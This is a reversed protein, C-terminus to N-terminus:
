QGRIFSACREGIVIAPVNTNGGTISPIIAADAVRLGEIGRVKLQPDVVADDGIGMKCTGVPHYVTCVRNPLEKRMEERTPYEAEGPHLEQTIMDGMEPHKMVERVLEIGDLLTEADAPDELFHPDIIPADDPNSSRLLMEGRSKPYILTPQITICPRTDVVPRGPADQNPSPYAWPLQHIQLNPIPESEKTKVFAVTEFVTRALWTTAPKFFEKVMASLLYMATGRNVAKPALYVLPFFLHDHLNKGVPLDVVPEIGVSKLHEAPGIGSLMLTQASGIVGGSLIVEKNALIDTINGKKDRTRVGTCRNGDLLVKLVHTHLLVELNDREKLFPNIYGEATSYRLGKEASMQFISVGEQEKGNYDDNIGCGTVADLAKMYALTPEKIDGPRSVKIPGSGGRTESEGDEFSELKKLYPLMEKYSWGECGEAAWDDYNKANGRVYVMGNVASSGGMVKGRTYPIKRNYTHPNPETYYGWDYQAKVQPVTHMVSIMGPKKVMSTNDDRGAEILLVRCDSDESLRGAVACGASGAGVVIYDFESMDSEELLSPLSALARM